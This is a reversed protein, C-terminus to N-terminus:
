QKDLWNKIELVPSFGVLIPMKYFVVLNQKSIEIISYGSPVINGINLDSLKFSINQNSYPASYSDVVQGSGYVGEKLGKTINWDIIEICIYPHFLTTTINCYRFIFISIGDKPQTFCSICGADELLLIKNNSLSRPLLVAPHDFNEILKRKIM